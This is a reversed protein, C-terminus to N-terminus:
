LKPETNKIIVNLLEKNEARIVKELVSIENKDKQNYDLGKVSSLLEMIRSYAEKNDETKPAEIIAWFLSDFDKIPVNLNNANLRGSENLEEMIELLENAKYLNKKKVLEDLPKGALAKILNEYGDKGISIKKLEELRAKSFKSKNDEIIGKNVGIFKELLFCEDYVEKYPNNENNEPKTRIGLKQLEKWKRKFLLYVPKLIDNAVQWDIMGDKDKSIRLVEKLMEVPYAFEAPYQIQPSELFYLVNNTILNILDISIYGSDIKTENIVPTLEEIFNNSFKYATLLRLYQDINFNTIEGLKDKLLDPPFKVDDFGRNKLAPIINDFLARINAMYIKNNCDKLYDTSWKISGYKDLLEEFHEDLMKIECDSASDKTEQLLEKALTTIDRSYYQKKTIHYFYDLRPQTVINKSNPVDEIMESGFCTTLHKVIDVRTQDINGDKDKCFKIYHPIDFPRMDRVEFEGLADLTEKNHNGENDKCSQILDAVHALGLMNSQGRLRYFNKLNAIINPSKGKEIAFLTRKAYDNVEDNADLIAYYAKYINCSLHGEFFKFLENLAKLNKPNNIGHIKKTELAFIRHDTDFIHDLEKVYQAYGRFKINTKINLDTDNIIPAIKM